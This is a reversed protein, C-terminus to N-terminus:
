NICCFHPLHLADFRVGPQSRSSSGLDGEQRGCTVACPVARRAVNVATRSACGICQMHTRCLIGDNCEAALQLRLRLLSRTSPPFSIFMFHFSCPILPELDGEWEVWEKQRCSLNCTGHSINHKQTRTHWTTRIDPLGPTPWIRLFTDLVLPVTGAIGFLNLIRNAPLQLEWFTLCRKASHLLLGTMSFCIWWRSGLSHPNFNTSKTHCSSRMALSHSRIQFPVFALSFFLDALLPSWQQKTKSIQDYQMCEWSHAHLQQARELWSQMVQPVSSKSRHGDMARWVRWLSAKAEWPRSASGLESLQAWNKLLCLCITDCWITCVDDYMM